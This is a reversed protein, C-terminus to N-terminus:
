FNRENSRESKRLDNLSGALLQYLVKLEILFYAEDYAPDLETQGNFWRRYECLKEQLDSYFGYTSHKLADKVVEDVTNKDVSTRSEVLTILERTYELLDQIIQISEADDHHIDRPLDIKDPISDLKVRTQELGGEVLGFPRVSEKDM